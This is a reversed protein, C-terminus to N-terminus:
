FQSVIVPNVLAHCPACSGPVLIGHPVDARLRPPPPTVQELYQYIERAEADSVAEAPFRPMIGRPSRLREILAEPGLTTNALAPSPRVASTSASPTRAAAPGARGGTGAWQGPSASTTRMSSAM